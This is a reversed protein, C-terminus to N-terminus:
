VSYKAAAIALLSTLMMATQVNVSEAIQVCKQIAAAVAYSYIVMVGQAPELISVITHIAANWVYSKMAAIVHSCTMMIATLANIPEAIKVSSPTNAIWAAQLMTYLAHTCSSANWVSRLMVSMVLKFAACANRSMIRVNLLVYSASCKRQVNACPHRVTMASAIDMGHASLQYVVMLCCPINAASVSGHFTAFM